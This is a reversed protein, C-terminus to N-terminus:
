GVLVIVLVLVNILKVLIILIEVLIILHTLGGQGSCRTPDASEASTSLLIGFNWGISSLSLVAFLLLPCRSDGHRKGGSKVVVIILVGVFNM